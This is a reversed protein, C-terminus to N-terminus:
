FTPGPCVTSRRKLSMSVVALVVLPASVVTADGDLDVSLADTSTGGVPTITGATGTATATVTVVDGVDGFTILGGVITTATGGVKFSVGSVVAADGDSDNAIADASAGTGPTITGATGTATATVTVVDGVDGFTILGGVITTATGGV